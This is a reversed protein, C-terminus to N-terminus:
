SHGPSDAARWYPSRIHGGCDFIQDPIFPVLGLDYCEDVFVEYFIAIHTPDLPNLALHSCPVTENGVRLAHRLRRLTRIRVAALMQWLVTARFSCSKESLPAIDVTPARCTEQM